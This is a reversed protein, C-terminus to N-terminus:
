RAPCDTVFRCHDRAPVFWGATPGAFHSGIVLTRSDSYRSVFSVRTRTAMDADHDFNGQWHPLAIQVPHHMLDGTIIANESRSEIHVSCHGSTHGPTPVLQIEECVRYGAADIFRHLGATVIPDVSDSLHEGHWDGAIQLQRIEAYETSDILYTANPFTPIWRGDELRTNWGVHDYHM